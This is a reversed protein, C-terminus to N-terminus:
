GGALTLGEAHCVRGARRGCGADRQLLRRRRPAPAAPGALGDDGSRGALVRVVARRAPRRVDVRALLAPEAPTEGGNGDCADVPLNLLRRVPHGDRMFLHGDRMALKAMPVLLAGLMSPQGDSLQRQVLIAEFLLAILDLADADSPDLGTSALNVGRAAAARILHERLGRPLGRRAKGCHPPRQAAGRRYDCCEGM